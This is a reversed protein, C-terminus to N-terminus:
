KRDGGLVQAVVSEIDEDYFQIVTYKNGPGIGTKLSVELYHKEHEHSYKKEMGAINDFPIIYDGKVLYNKYRDNM